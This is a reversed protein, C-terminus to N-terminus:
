MAEKIREPTMPLQYLRAGTADFIANAVVGGMCIIAPEGGGQPSADSEILVTEIEPTWSFRTIEYTDFNSDLIEGGKFRIEEALAYGLGMTVCGEVQLTAGQPNVVLGMDQACVVRKVQVHGNKDVEVEAMLAVWTGSDTGCAVGYGRGSPGKAPTWGFRDAAAKLIRIVQGNKLNKLRFEVPDMGAKAAMIDIQSERAFTNTNNAPARWAGTGFPHARGGGHTM